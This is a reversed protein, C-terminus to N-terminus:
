ESITEWEAWSLWSIGIIKQLAVRSSPILYYFIIEISINLFAFFLGIIITTIRYSKQSTHLTYLRTSYSWMTDLFHSLLKNECKSITGLFSFKWPVFFESLIFNHDIRYRGSIKTIYESSIKRTKRLAYLLSSLEGAWKYPSDVIKRIFSNDGAYIYEDVAIQLKELWSKQIGSEVVVIYANPIYQRISAITALTQELRETPSFSSRVQSYSLAKQKFHIVSTVYVIM